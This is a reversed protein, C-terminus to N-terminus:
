HRPKGFLVVISKGSARGTTAGDIIAIGCDEYLPSMINERHGPSEMWSEVLFPATDFGMALNEAAAVFPYDRAIMWTFPSLGTPSEHSWYGADEMDRMRDDAAKILRAELHLPSLGADARYANMQALVNERTIEGTADSAFASFHVLLLLLIPLRKM